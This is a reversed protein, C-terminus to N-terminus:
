KDVGFHKEIATTYHYKDIGGADEVVDICERVILQAFKEDRIEQYEESSVERNHAREMWATTDRAARRAQNALEQIRPNM